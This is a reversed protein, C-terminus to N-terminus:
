ELEELEHHWFLHMTGDDLMVSFATHHSNGGRVGVIRGEKEELGDERPPQSIRVRTGVKAKAPEM